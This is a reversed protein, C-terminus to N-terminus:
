GDGVRECAEHCEVLAVFGLYVGVVKVSRLRSVQKVGTGDSHDGDELVAAICGVSIELADTGVILNAELPGLGVLSDLHGLFGDLGEVGAGKIDVRRYDADRVAAGTAATRYSDSEKGVVVCEGGM